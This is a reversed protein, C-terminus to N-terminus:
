PQTWRTGAMAHTDHWSVCILSPAVVIFLDLKPNAAAPISASALQDLSASAHPPQKTGGDSFVTTVPCRIAIDIEVV